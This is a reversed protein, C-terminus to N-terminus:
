EDATPMARRARRTTPVVPVIEEVTEEPEEIAAKVVAAKSSTKTKPAAKLAVKPKEEVAEEEEGIVPDEEEIDDDDALLPKRPAKKSSPTYSEEDINDNGDDIIERSTSFIKNELRTIYIPNFAVVDTSVIFGLDNIFCKFNVVCNVFQNSCKTFQTFMPNKVGELMTDALRYPHVAHLNENDVVYDDARHLSLMSTYQLISNKANEDGVRDTNIYRYNVPCHPAVIHVGTKEFHTSHWKNYNSLLTKDALGSLNMRVTVFHDKENEYVVPTFEPKNGVMTIKNYCRRYMAAYAEPDTDLCKPEFINDMISSEKLLKVESGEEEYCEKMRLMESKLDEQLMKIVACLIENDLNKNHIYPAYKEGNENSNKVNFVVRQPENTTTQYKNKVSFKGASVNIIMNDMLDWIPEKASGANYLLTTFMGNQFFSCANDFGNEKKSEITSDVFDAARKSLNNQIEENFSDETLRPECSKSGKPKVFHFNLLTFRKGAPLKSVKKYLTSINITEFIKKKNKYPENIYAAKNLKDQEEVTLYVASM